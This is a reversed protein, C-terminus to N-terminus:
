MNEVSNKQPLMKNMEYTWSSDLVYRHVLDDFSKWQKQNICAKGNAKFKHQVKHSRTWNTHILNETYLEKSSLSRELVYKCLFFLLFNKFFENIDGTFFLSIWYVICTHVWSIINKSNWAVVHDSQPSFQFIYKFFICVCNCFVYCCKQHWVYSSLATMKALLYTLM